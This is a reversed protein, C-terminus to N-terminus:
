QIEISEKSSNDFFPEFSFETSYSDTIKHTNLDVKYYTVDSSVPFEKFPLYDVIAKTFSVFAPLAARSGTELRGIPKFDDFGTWVGTVINPMVGIFWADRYENTTGTKGGIIRPIVKARRGTGNEVVNILIDSMIHATSPKLVEIKDHPVEEVLIEGNNDVVMKVFYPQVRMGLNAFTSYAYVMEMLSISGSGISISLDNELPSTIGFKEAYAKITDVGLREALKITVVNRSHTLAEKLTTFGYFEEEFNEPKWYGKDKGKSLIVPADYILTNINYGKEIAASYVIPKFLSGVQRKAQVVRNFMSRNYSFGGVMAFISGNEPSISLLAGETQPIQTLYLKNKSKKVLIVDNERLIKRFDDLYRLRSGYPKAWKNYKLNLEGIEGDIDLIVKFRDVKKVVAFDFGLENIYFYKKKLKEYKIDALNGLPGFYGQRKSLNLLNQRVSKEAALQFDLNLTTFIKYGKDKIDLEYKKKIYQTVFDVFYEAHKIMKPAKPVIEIPKESLEKYQLENIYGEEFMRYLVHNRRKLAKEPNIHPAYLGPAKPLGAILAAEDISLESVHKGFYVRAAAEVGYAGRGFYVQNLYMELIKDKTLYNDLKYALIAEKVKRKLKREPTLYLVKVLQQTLTSGGEVIRGARINKIFARVIGLFDVGGHEYFRSDEVAVVANKLYEPVDSLPVPYRRETGIEAITRNKADLIISPQKYTFSKLEKISPLESSLKYIYVFFVATM